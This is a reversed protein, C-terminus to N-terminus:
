QENAQAFLPPNHSLTDLELVVFLHPITCLQNFFSEICGEPSDQFHNNKELHHRQSWLQGYGGAVVAIKLNEAFVTPRDLTDLRHGFQGPTEGVRNQDSLVEFCKHGLRVVEVGDGAMAM